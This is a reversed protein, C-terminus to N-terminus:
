KGPRGPPKQWGPLLDRVRAAALDVDVAFSGNQPRIEATIPGDLAGGFDLGKKKRASDDLTLVIAIQPPTQAAKRYDIRAALWARARVPGTTSRLAAPM